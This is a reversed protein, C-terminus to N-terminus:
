YRLLKLDPNFRGWMVPHQRNRSSRQVNSTVYDYIERASIARDGNKDAKGRFGQILFHTFLGSKAGHNEISKENTRSSLFLIINQNKLAATDSNNKKEIRGSGSHCTDALILKTRAKSHKFIRSLDRYTLLTNSTRTNYVCMGGNLGHGSFFFILVDDPRNKSAVKELTEIVKEYTANKGLITYVDSSGSNYLLRGFSTADSQAYRLPTAEPSLYHDIGVCVAYVRASVAPASALALTLFLFFIVSRCRAM